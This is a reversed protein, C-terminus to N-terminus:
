GSLHLCKCRNEKYVHACSIIIREPKKGNSSQKTTLGRRRHPKSNLHEQTSFTCPVLRHILREAGGLLLSYLVGDHQVYAVATKGFGDKLLSLKMDRPDGRYAMNRAHLARLVKLEGLLFCATRLVTDPAPLARWEAALGALLAGARYAQAKEIIVYAKKERCPIQIVDQEPYEEVVRDEVFPLLQSFLQPGFKSFKWERALVKRFAASDGDLVDLDNTIIVEVPDNRFM